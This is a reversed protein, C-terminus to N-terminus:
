HRTRALPVHLSVIDARRLPPSLAGRASPSSVGPAHDSAYIVKMRFGPEARWPAGSGSLGVIGLAGSVGPGASIPAM